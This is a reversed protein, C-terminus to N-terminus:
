KWADRAQTGLEVSAIKILYKTNQSLSQWSEIKLCMLFLGSQNRKRRAEGEGNTPPTTPQTPGQGKLLLYTVLLHCGDSFEGRHWPM